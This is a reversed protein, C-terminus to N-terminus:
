TFILDLMPLRLRVGPVRCLKRRPCIREPIKMRQHLPNKAMHSANRRRRRVNQFMLPRIYIAVQQTPVAGKERPIVLDPEDINLCNAQETTDRILDELFGEDLKPLKINPKGPPVWPFPIQLQEKIV